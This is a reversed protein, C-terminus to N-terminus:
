GKVGGATLGEVLNKQLVFFLGMVPVSVMVAGAAFAGWQTSYDGVYRQLAVPLTYATEDAM